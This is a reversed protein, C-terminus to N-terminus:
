EQAKARGRKRVWMAADAEALWDEPDTQGTFARVGISGRRTELRIPDGAALGHRALERPSLFAFAEPEVADLVGTRRTMSGTHWHELVRGTSLVLPYAEDPVEDPLPLVFIFLFTM